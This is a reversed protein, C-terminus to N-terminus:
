AIGCCFRAFPAGDYLLVTALAHGVLQDREDLVVWLGLGRSKQAFLLWVEDMLAQGTGQHLQSFAIIRPGVWDMYKAAHPQDRELQILRPQVRIPPMNEFVTTDQEDFNVTKFVKYDPHM